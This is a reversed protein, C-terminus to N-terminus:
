LGLSRAVLLRQIESTGEGITMLKVDRLYREVPFDRVYGYGGHVQVAELAGREAAESAFLKAMSAAAAYPEGRDRLWAAKYVLLRAAELAVAMDALKFQIAQFRGIPQGFQHRQQAYRLSADLCAQLIGCSLAGIGIRGGALVELFNRYGRGREGLLQGAPVRCGEFVLEATDSAHLGLKEYRRAVRFGPTGREVIFNSIGDRGREPDTVAAIVVAGARSGNTIFVKTGDIVFDDGDPVARTATAAADSGAGPETLGFALLLEGRLAPPLYRRRQEENGFLYVPTCGLSVHAAVSLALAADARALEELALAFALTGLGTGGYDEPFPLGLIGLEGLERFVADPIHGEQEWRAAHPVVRTEAFERALQRVERLEESLAFDM